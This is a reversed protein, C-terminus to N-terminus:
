NSHHSFLAERKNVRFSFYLRSFLLTPYFMDEALFYNGMCDESSAGTIFLREGNHTKISAFPQWSRSKDFANSGENVFRM